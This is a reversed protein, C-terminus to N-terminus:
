DKGLTGPDLPTVDHPIVEAAWGYEENPGEPANEAATQAAESSDFPGYFPAEHPPTGNDGYRFGWQKTPANKKDARQKPRRKGGGFLANLDKELQTIGNKAM